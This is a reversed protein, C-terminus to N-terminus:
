QAVQAGASRALVGVFVAFTSALDAGVAYAEGRRFEYLGDPRTSISAGASFCADLIVAKAEANM